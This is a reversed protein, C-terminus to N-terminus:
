PTLVIKGFHQRREMTEMAERARDLTYV